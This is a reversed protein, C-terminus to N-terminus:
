LSISDLVNVVKNLILVTNEICKANHCKADKSCHRPLAAPIETKYKTNIKPTRMYVADATIYNRKVL